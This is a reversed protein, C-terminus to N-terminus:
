TVLTCGAPFAGRCVCRNGWNLSLESEVLLERGFLTVNLNEIHIDALVCMNM